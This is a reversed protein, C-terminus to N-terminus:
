SIRAPINASLIVDTRFHGCLIAPKLHNFAM